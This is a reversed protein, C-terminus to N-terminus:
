YRRRPRDDDDDRRRMERREERRMERRADERDMDRERERRSRLDVGPGNPGIEFRQASAPAASFLGIAVLSGAIILKM